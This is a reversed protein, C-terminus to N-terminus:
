HWDSPYESMAVKHCWFLAGMYNKMVVLRVLPTTFTMVEMPRVVSSSVVNQWCWGVSVGTCIKGFM